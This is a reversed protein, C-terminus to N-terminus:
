KIIKILNILNNKKEKTLRGEISGRTWRGDISCFSNGDSWRGGNAKALWHESCGYKPGTRDSIYTTGGQSIIVWKNDDSIWVIKIGKYGFDVGSKYDNFWKNISEPITLSNKIKLEELQNEYDKILIFISNKKKLNDKNFKNKYKNLEQEMKIYTEDNYVNPISKKLIDIEKKIQKQTM